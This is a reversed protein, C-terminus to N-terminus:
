ENEWKNIPYAGYGFYTPPLMGKEEIKELLFSAEHWVGSEYGEYKTLDPYLNLIIKTILDVMEDRKM